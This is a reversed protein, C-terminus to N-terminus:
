LSSTPFNVSFGGGKGTGTITINVSCSFLCSEVAFAGETDAKASGGNNAASTGSQQSVGLYHTYLSYLGSLSGAEGGAPADDAQAVVSCGVPGSTSATGSYTCMSGTQNDWFHEGSSHQQTAFLVHDFPGYTVNYASCDTQGLVSGAILMFSPLLLLHLKM